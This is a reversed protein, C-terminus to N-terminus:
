ELLRVLAYQHGFYVTDGRSHPTNDSNWIGRGIAKGDTVDTVHSGSAQIGLYGNSWQQVLSGGPDKSVFIQNNFSNGGLSIIENGIRIATGAISAFRTQGRVHIKGDRDGLDSFLRATRQNHAPGALLIQVRVGRPYFDFDPDATYYRTDGKNPLSGTSSNRTWDWALQWGTGSVPVTRADDTDMLAAGFHLVDSLILSEDIKQYFNPNEPDNLWEVEKNAQPIVRTRYLETTGTKVYWIVFVLQDWIEGGRSQEAQRMWGISTNGADAPDVEAYFHGGQSVPLQNALDEDLLTFVAMIEDGIQRSNEGARYLTGSAILIGLMGTGVVLFIAMAMMIEILTMGDFTSVSGKRHRTVKAQSPKHFPLTDVKSPATM